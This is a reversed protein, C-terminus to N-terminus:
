AQLPPEEVLLRMGVSAGEGIGVPTDVDKEVRVANPGENRVLIGFAFLDSDSHLKGCSYKM